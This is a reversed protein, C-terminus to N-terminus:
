APMLRLPRSSLPLFTPHYSEKTLQWFDSKFPRCLSPAATRARARRAQGAGRVTLRKRRLGQRRWEGLQGGKGRGGGGLEHDALPADAAARLVAVRHRGVEVIHSTPARGAPPRRWGRGPRRLAERRPARRRLAAAPQKWLVREFEPAGRPGLSAGECRM